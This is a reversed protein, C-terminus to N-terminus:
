LPMGYLKQNEYPMYIVTNYMLWRKSAPDRILRFGCRANARESSQSMPASTPFVVEVVPAGADLLEEIRPNAGPVRGGARVAEGMPLPGGVNKRGRAVVRIEVDAVKLQRVDRYGAQLQNWIRAAGAAHPESTASYGMSQLWREKDEFSADLSVRMQEVYVSALGAADDKTEPLDAAVAVIRDRITALGADLGVKHLDLDHTSELVKVVSPPPPIHAPAPITSATALPPASPAVSRVVMVVGVAACVLAAATIAFRKM